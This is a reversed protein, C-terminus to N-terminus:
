SNRPSGKRSELKSEVRLDHDGCGADSGEYQYVRRSSSCSMVVFGSLGRNGPFRILISMVTLPGMWASIRASAGELGIDDTGEAEYPDALEKEGDLFVCGDVRSVGDDGLDSELRIM